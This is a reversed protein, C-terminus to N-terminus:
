RAPARGPPGGMPPAGPPAVPPGGASPAGPPRGAAYNSLMGNLANGLNADIGIGRLLERGEADILILNPSGEVSFAWAAISGVRDIGFDSAPIGWDTVISYPLPGRQEALRAIEAGANLDESMCIAIIGLREEPWQTRVAGLQQLLPVIDKDGPTFFYLLAPKGAMQGISVRRHATDVWALNPFPDEKQRTDQDMREWTSLAYAKGPTAFTLQLSRVVIALLVALAAMTLGKAMLSDKARRERNQRLLMFLLLLLTLGYAISRNQGYGLRLVEPYYNSGAKYIFWIIGALGAGAILIRISVVCFFALTSFLLVTPLLRWFSQVYALLVVPEQNGLMQGLMTALYLLLMPAIVIVEMALWRGLTLEEPNVRKSHQLEGVEYRHPRYAVSAAVFLLLIEVLSGIDRSLMLGLMVSSAEPAIYGGYLGLAGLLLAVGWVAPSRLNLKLELRMTGLVRARYDRLQLKPLRPLKPAKM